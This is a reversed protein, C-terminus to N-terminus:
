DCRFFVAQVMGLTEHVIRDARQFFSVRGPSAAGHITADTCKADLMTARRLHYNTTVVVIDDWGHEDALRGLEEAEGITTVPEPAPCLVEFPEQQGCLTEGNPWRVDEGYMAVLVPAADRREILHVAERLRDGSGGAHVVVADGSPTGEDPPFIVLVALFGFVVAVVGVAPVWWRWQGLLRRM